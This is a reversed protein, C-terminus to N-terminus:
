LNVTDSEHFVLLPRHPELAMERTVSTHVLSDWFGRHRTSMMLLDANVEECYTNLGSVVDEKDINKIIVPKETAVKAFVAEMQWEPYEKGIHITHLRANFAQVLQKIHGSIKYDLDTESSAYVLVSLPTFTADEPVILVPASAKKVLHSPISGFMRDLVGSEGRAGVVIMAGNSQSLSVIEEIPFGLIFSSFVKVEDAMKDTLMERVADTTATLKKRKVTEIGPDIMYGTNLDTAPNLVHVLEVDCKLFFALQVAYKVAADAGSSFDTPVIIKKM